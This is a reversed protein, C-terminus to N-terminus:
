EEGAIAAQSFWISPSAISHYAWDLDDGVCVVHNMLDMFNGAITILTLPRTRKGNEILYGKAQLSFDGSVFQIGVHLGILETILIGHDMKEEMQELSDKGPEIYLNFSSVGTSGGGSKFGNGTSQTGMKLASKTNHLVTEFVGDKVITKTRTPTGEDDYNALFVSQQNRPDDIITIKDSFVKEGEKGKLLSIGKAIMDGYFLASFSAFLSTMAKNKIIVPYNGSKISGASLTALVKDCLRKVFADEDFDKLDHILEIEYGDEVDEGEQVMISASLIQYTSGDAIDLGNSNVLVKGSEADGWGLSAVQIIRPDYALLKQELSELTKLISDMDPRIWKHLSETKETEVFDVLVDQETEAVLEAQELLQDLRQDMEDDDVVELRMSVTKGDKLARFSTSELSSEVFSDMTKEYWSVERESSKSQYIEFGDFGKELARAIWKAKNM